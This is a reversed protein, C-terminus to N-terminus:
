TGRRKIVTVLNFDSSYVVEVGEPPQVQSVKFFKGMDLNTIDIKITAPIDSPKCIIDIRRRITRLSGGMQVGISKGTIEIPVSVTINESDKVQYFDVHRINGTVPHRQVDKVM